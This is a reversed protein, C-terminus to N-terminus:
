RPRKQIIRLVGDSAQYIEGHIMSIYGKGARTLVKEVNSPEDPHHDPIRGTTKWLVHLDRDLMEANLSDTLAFLQQHEPEGAISSINEMRRWQISDARTVFVAGYERVVLWAGVVAIEEVRVGHYPIRHLKQDSPTPLSTWTAGGDATMWFVGGKNFGATAVYATTGSVRYLHTVDNLTAPLESRVWTQGGDNSTMFLARRSQNEWRTGMLWVSRGMAAIDDVWALDPVSVPSWSRGGNRTRQLRPSSDGPTFPMGVLATTDDVFALNIGISIEMPDGGTGFVHRWSGPLSDAVYLGGRAIWYRGAPSIFLEPQWESPPLEGSRAPAAGEIEVGVTADSTVMLSAQMGEIGTAAIPAIAVVTSDGRPSLLVEVATTVGPPRVVLRHRAADMEDLRYSRTKLRRVIRQYLSDAPVGITTSMTPTQAARVVAPWLCLVALLSVTLM